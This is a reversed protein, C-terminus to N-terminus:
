HQTEKLKQLMESHEEPTLNQHGNRAHSSRKTYQNLHYRLRNYTFKTECVGCVFQKTVVATQCGEQRHIKMHYAKFTSYECDLCKHSMRRRKTGLIKHASKGQLYNVESQLRIIEARQMDREKASKVLAMRLKKLEIKQNEIITREEVVKLELRKLDDGNNSIIENMDLMTSCKKLKNSLHPAPTLPPPEINRKGLRKSANDPKQQKIVDM